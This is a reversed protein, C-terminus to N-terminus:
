RLAPITGSFTIKVAYGNTNTSGSAPLSIKLGTSDQTYTCAAGGIFTVGTITSADFSGSKLSTIVMQNGSPWGLEIAYLTKNDKSRTFRIDTAKGEAPAGMGGGGMATPGEGFKTWARTNYIAEGFVKLWAGMGLLIDKQGQPFTGDAMPSTNLLLFGNKAVRDILAHLLARTTYYRMGETYGWTSLSVTDESLWFTPSLGAEGGREVQHIEGKTNFGDNYSVVVDKGWSVAKNYYYALYELRHADTVNNMGFDHWMYDPQFKDILEKEKCLWLASEEAKTLQGYLKKLSADTQAPAWEFYGSFNYATHTSVLLKMGKARYAQALRAVLDIKPGKDMANWENCASDWMSFGDHHEAVPGAMKAGADAFLQAWAEPDWKGGDAVEKPAFQVLKGSKDNAGTLFKDYGWTGFPDGFVSM